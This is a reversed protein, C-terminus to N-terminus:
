YFNLNERLQELCTSLYYRYPSKRYFNVNKQWSQVLMEVNGFKFGYQPAQRVLEATVLVSQVWPDHLLLLRGSKHVNRELFTTVQSRIKKAIQPDDFPYWDNFTDTWMMPFNYDKLTENEWVKKMLKANWDGYPPRYINLPIGTFQTILNHSRIMDKIVWDMPEEPSWKHSYTHNGVVHGEDIEPAFVIREGQEVINHSFMLDEGRPIDPFLGYTEFVERSFSCNAGSVFKAEREPNNPSFEMSELIYEVRSFINAHSANIISGAIARYGNQHWVIIKQLWDASATCDSDIFAL